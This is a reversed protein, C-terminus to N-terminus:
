DSITSLPLGSKVWKVLKKQFKAEISVTDDHTDVPSLRSFKTTDGLITMM